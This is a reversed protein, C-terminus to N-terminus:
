TVAALLGSRQVKSGRTPPTRQRVEGLIAMSFPIHWKAEMVPDPTTAPGNKDAKAKFSEFYDIAKKTTIGDSEAGSGRTTLHTRWKTSGNNFLTAINQGTIKECAKLKKGRLLQKWISNKVYGMVTKLYLDHDVQHCPLGDWTGAGTPCPRDKVYAWKRPLGINNDGSNIDWETMAFCAYIFVKQPETLEEPFTDDSCAHVCLIHHVEIKNETASSTASYGSKCNKIHTDGKRARKFKWDEPDDPHGDAM